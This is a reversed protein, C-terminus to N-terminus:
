IKKSQLSFFEARSFLKKVVEIGIHYKKVYVSKASEILIAILTTM